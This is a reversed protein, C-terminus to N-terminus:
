TRKRERRNGSGGGTRNWGLTNHIHGGDQPRGCANIRRQVEAVAHGGGEEVARGGAVDRRQGSARQVDHDNVRMGQELGCGRHEQRAAADVDGQRAARLRHRPQFLPHELNVDTHIRGAGRLQSAGRQRQRVAHTHQRGHGGVLGGHGHAHRETLHWLRTGQLDGQRGVGRAPIGAGHVGAGVFQKADAGAAGPAVRDPANLDAKVGGWRAGVALRQADGPALRQGRAPRVTEGLVNRQGVRDRGATHVVHDPGSFGHGHALVTVRQDARTVPANGRGIGPSGDAPHADAPALPRDSACDHHDSSLVGLGDDHTMVLLPGSQRGM